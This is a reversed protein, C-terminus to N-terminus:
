IKHRDRVRSNALAIILVFQCIICLLKFLLYSVLKTLLVLQLSLFYLYLFLYQVCFSCLMQFVLLFCLVCLFYLFTHRCVMFKEQPLAAPYPLIYLICFALSSICFSFLCICLSSLLEGFGTLPNVGCFLVAVFVFVFSCLYLNECICFQVFM